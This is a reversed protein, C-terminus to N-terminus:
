TSVPCSSAVSPFPRRCRPSRDDIATGACVVICDEPLAARAGVLAAWRDAGLQAPIRLWERWPMRRGGPFSRCNAVVRRCCAAISRVGGGGAVNCVVVRADALRDEAAEKLWTVDATALCAARLGATVMTCGGSIRNNGADIAVIM